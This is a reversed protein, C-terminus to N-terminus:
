KKKNKKDDKEEKKETMKNFRLSPKVKLSNKFDTDEFSFDCLVGMLSRDLRIQGTTMSGDSNIEFSVNRITLSRYHAEAAVGKAYGKPLKTVTRGLRRASNRGAIDFRFEAEAALYGLSPNDVLKGLLISDSKIKGQIDRTENRLLVNFKVPGVETSLRGKFQQEKYPIDVSGVFSIDGLKKVVGLMSEKVKFHSIIQDKIDGKATMSKVDFHLKPVKSSQLSDIVGNAKIKLKNDLTRISIDHFNISDKNGKVLVTMELPTTFESLAPSFPQAIDVLQTKVHVQETEFVVSLKDANQQLGYVSIKPAQIITHQDKLYLDTIQASKTDTAILCSMTDVRLGSSKDEAWLRDLRLQIDDKKASLITLHCHCVIKMHGIDFAGTMPKGANKRPQDNDTFYRLDEVTIDKLNECTLKAISASNGRDIAKLDVIEIYKDKINYDGKLLTITNGKYKGDLREAHVTSDTQSYEAKALKVDIRSDADSLVAWHVESNVAEVNRIDFSVKKSEDEESPQKHNLSDLLFQFNTASDPAVKYINATAGDLKISSVDVQKSFLKFFDVKGELTKAYLMQEGMKDKIEVGFLAIGGKPISLSISDVNVETDLKESLSEVAERKLFQQVSPLCLLVTISILLIGIVAITIFIIKIIKRVM